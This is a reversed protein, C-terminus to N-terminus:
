GKCSFMQNGITVVQILKGAATASCLVGLWNNVMKHNQRVFTM